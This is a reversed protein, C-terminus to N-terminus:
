RFFWHWWPLFAVQHRHQEQSAVRYRRHHVSLRRHVAFRLPPRGLRAPTAAPLVVARPLFVLQQPTPHVQRTQPVGAAEGPLAVGLDSRVLHQRPAPHVQRTQLVGLASPLVGGDLLSVCVAVALIWVTTPSGARTAARILTLQDTM